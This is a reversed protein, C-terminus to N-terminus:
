HDVLLARPKYKFTLLAPTLSPLLPLFCLPPRRHTPQHRHAPLEGEPCSQGRGTPEGAVREAEWGGSGAQGKNNLASCGETPFQSAGDAKATLFLLGQCNSWASHPLFELKLAAQCPFLQRFVVHCQSPSASEKGFNWTGKSESCLFQKHPLTTRM